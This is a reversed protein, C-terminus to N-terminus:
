TGDTTDGQAPNFDLLVDVGPGGSFRDPGTGGLLRDDGPGGRLLDRGAGGRLVDNGAGGRLDDNGLGGGVMDAGDGGVVVDRGDGGCVTDIGGLTRIADDGGRGFVVDAGSTGALTNARDTGVLVRVTVSATALGDSVKVTVLATGVTNRMPPKISLRRRDASVTVASLPLVTTNSTTRTVTLPDGDPDTAVLGVVATNPASTCPDGPAVRVSPARNLRFTVTNDTSTSALSTNAAGDQAAGAPITAVVTGTTTMGTVTVTYTAGSGSVTATVPSATSGSLDVDAATFGTVPESFTVTFAASSAATPDAQGAAQDITVTPATTDYVVALTNSAPSANAAADAVAGAAVQVTVTGDASPTVDFTVTQSNFVVFNGATGGTVAVKTTDFSAALPESLSATVAIPGTNTPSISTTTLTITPAVSDFVLNFSAPFSDNGAADTAAGAPVDATVAGQAIPTLDFTYTDGDVASFNSLSANGVTVDGAAFGSVPESFQATVHLPSDSTTAGSGSTLALTPRVSDFGISKPTAATNGNGAVDSVSDAPLGLTVTGDAAPILDVTYSSGSGALNAVSGNTVAFDAPSLGTVAESFSVTVPIPSTHTPDAANITLTATPPTRDVAYDPGDFPLNGTLLGKGGAIGTDTIGTADTLNLGLSGEGTGSDATVTRTAGSGTVSTISSGTLGTNTLAFNAATVGTVSQDFTVTWSVSAANTPSTGDRSISVLAPPNDVTVDASALNNVPNDKAITSSAISAVNQIQLGEASGPAVMGTVTITGGQGSALEAIDWAYTTGPRATPTPGTFTFSTNTLAAPIADTVTVDYVKEPGANAYTLTYTVQDGVAPFAPTAGKSLQLDSTPAVMQGWVESEGAPLVGHNEGSWTVLYGNVARESYAVAPALPANAEGDPGMDSIRFTDEVVGLTPGLRKGFIEQDPGSFDGVWTLLWENSVSNWALAPDQAHSATGPTGTQTLQAVSGAPTGAPNLRQGWIEFDNVSGATGNAGDGEWVVLWTGSTANWGVDPVFTETTTDNAAGAGGILFDNTGTEAGAATLLQGYIRFANDTGTDDAQWTALYTDDTSNWAVAPDNADFASLGNVGGVDSIQVDNAGVEVLNTGSWGLRQEFIEQEGNVMGNEDSDGGFVVLFEDDTANWVVDPPETVDYNTDLDNTGLDSVRLEAGVQAGAPSIQQAYVERVDALINPDVNLDDSGVYVVVFENRTADFVVDPNFADTQVDGAAGHRVVLFDSGIEAGTRGDLFQGHIEYKAEPPSDVAAASWVVLYQDTAPDYAASSFGVGGAVAEQSIRFDNTGVEGAVASPALGALAVQLSAAALAASTLTALARRRM